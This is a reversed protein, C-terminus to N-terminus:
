HQQEEDTRGSKFESAPLMNLKDEEADLRRFTLWFCVGGLFSLVAISSYNWVLLPDESLSTLAQGIASSFASMFLFVAMVLSRMNRPAKTFAYELGTISAFIESLGVFVYPLTQVWVNIPVPRESGCENPFNGCPSKQYIFHQTVAASIMALTGFFFGLTIRKIPTFRIGMKSLWPYVVYDMIPIFIILSLPNLNTLVDNPVGNREMTGAQSILNGTIQNYALWFVPYFLFVNCAKFGRRVQDVWADDFTMWDPRREIKSPKVREWFSGDRMNHITRVPNISWRGKMGLGVLKLSKALVSGQPQTVAYQNRCAYLVMPCLLFMFTPLTYSLWFGVYKEAYVMSLQGALSGINIMMYFYLFIRSVTVAPDMIVREGKATTIVRMRTEQYQEAILPSINSKFGGVGIGMIVLGIAFCAISRNPHVIVPPIASMILVLHGVLAIFIAWMITKFRGLYEDAVYAGFLPMVYAWFSNFTTLGTSARQGLGLAGPQGDPAAGTTSGPPLPLQIFNVFVVITGYYSFRECLEVFAITYAPWPIKDSVRRLTHLEAETPADPYSGNSHDSLSDLQKEDLVSDKAPLRASALFNGVGAVEVREASRESNMNHSM